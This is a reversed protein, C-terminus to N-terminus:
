VAERDKPKRALLRVIPQKSEHVITIRSEDYLIIEWEAFWELLEAPRLLYIPNVKTEEILPDSRMTELFLLGGPKLIRKYVPFLRRELFWFNAIVDFSEGAFHLNPLDALLVQLASFFAKAKRLAVLSFDVGIVQLGHQAMLNANHGLGMAVDLAIGKEPLFAQNELLFERANM